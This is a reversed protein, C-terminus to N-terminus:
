LLTTWTFYTLRSQAVKLYYMGKRTPTCTLTNQSSKCISDSIGPTSCEEL